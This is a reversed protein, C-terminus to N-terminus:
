WRSLTVPLRTIPCSVVARGCFVVYRVSRLSARCPCRYLDAPDLAATYGELVPVIWRDAPKVARRRWFCRWPYRTGNLNGPPGSKGRKGNM